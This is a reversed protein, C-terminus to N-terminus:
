GRAEVFGAMEFAKNLADRAVGEFPTADNPDDMPVDQLWWTAPEQGRWVATQGVSSSVVVVNGEELLLYAALEDLSCEEFADPGLEDSVLDTEDTTKCARM